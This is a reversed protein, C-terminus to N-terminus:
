VILKLVKSKISQEVVYKQQNLMKSIDILKEIFYWDNTNYYKAEYKNLDDNNISNWYFLMDDYKEFLHLYNMYLLINLNEKKSRMDDYNLQIYHIYNIDKRSWLIANSLLCPGADRHMVGVSWWELAAGCEEEGETSHPLYGDYGNSTRILPDDYFSNTHRCGRGGISTFDERCYTKKTNSTPEVMYLVLTQPKGEIEVQLYTEIEIFEEYNNDYVGANSSTSIRSKNHNYYIIGIKGLSLIRSRKIRREIKKLNKRLEEKTMHISYTGTNEDM